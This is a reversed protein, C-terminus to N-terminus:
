GGPGQVLVIRYEGIDLADNGTGSLTATGSVGTNSQWTVNWNSTATIPWKGTGGTREKTSRWTYKHGCPPEAKWDYNAPPASGTGQCTITVPPGAAYPGGTAAPEGLSWAVSSLTATLVVSIAGSSVTVTQAGPDTTWLWTWLNVALKTRDPGVGISPQPIVIQNLARQALEYPTPPAPAVAPDSAFDSANAVFRYDLLASGGGSGDNAIDGCRLAELRGDAPSNGGWRPSDAPDDLAYWECPREKSSQPAVIGLLDVFIDAAEQHLVEEASELTDGIIQVVDCTAGVIDGTGVWVQVPTCDRQARYAIDGHMPSPFPGTLIAIFLLCASARIM